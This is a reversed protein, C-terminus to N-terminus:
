GVGRPLSSLHCGRREEGEENDDLGGGSCKFKLAKLLGDDEDDLGEGLYM